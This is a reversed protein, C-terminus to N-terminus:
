LLCGQGLLTERLLAASLAQVTEKRRICLAAATGAAQGVAMVPAQVRISALATRDASICRGAVLINAFRDAIMSRYPIYGAENLFQVSQGSDKAHHIDVPHASRAIADEFPTAALLEEGTLIHVGALRRSERYGAQAATMMLYCNRFEDFHERLLAVFRFTDERLACEATTAEETNTPHASARTMNVNVVGDHLVTCFWPGGFLPVSVGAQRLQTLKDAIRDNFYRTNAERPNLKELRQTDVGALRFCLTAPQLAAADECSPQMPMHAMVALDGDGTCDIFMRGGICAVGQKGAVFMATVEGDVTHVGVLLTHLFLTVGAKLVMRQATLKYVEPDFPVNGIPYDLVAGGLAHMREALEWPIGGIIRQGHKNFESIPTVLGATAMGGLFGYREVLATRAGSRAAAIAAAIGAPGGGAVVVDYQGLVTCDQRFVMQQM